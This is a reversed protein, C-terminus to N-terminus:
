HVYRVRWRALWDTIGDVVYKSDTAIIWTKKQSGHEREHTREGAFEALGYIVALLEARQNTRPQDPDHADTVPSSYNTNPKTSWYAGMGARASQTGNGLCAGDTM